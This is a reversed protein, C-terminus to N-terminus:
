GNISRSYSLSRIADRTPSSSGKAPISGIATSSIFSNSDFITALSIDKIKLEAIGFLNEQVTLDQFISAEQPLYSLGINSRVHMPLNSVEADDIKIKGSDPFIIGAAIYFVSTKGAGNPGLLGVIEASEINFNIDLLIKKDNITKNINELSLRTKAM